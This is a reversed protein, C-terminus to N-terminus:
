EEGKALLMGSFIVYTFVFVFIVISDILSEFMEGNRIFLMLKILSFVYLFGALYSQQQRYIWSLQKVIFVHISYFALPVIAGLYFFSTFFTVTPVGLATGNNFLMSAFTSNVQGIMKTGSVLPLTYEIPSIFEFGKAWRDILVLAYRMPEFEGSTFYAFPSEILNINRFSLAAVLMTVVIPSMILITKVTGIRHILLFGGWAIVIMVLERRTTLIVGLTFGVIIAGIVFSLTRSKVCDLLATAGVYFISMTSFYLVAGGQETINFAIAGPNTTILEFVSLRRFNFWLLGCGAAMCILSAIVRGAKGNSTKILPTQVPKIIISLFVMLMIVACILLAAIIHHWRLEVQLPSFLIGHDGLVGLAGGIAFLSIILIQFGIPSFAFNLERPGVKREFLTSNM